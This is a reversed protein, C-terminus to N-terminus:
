AHGFLEDIESADQPENDQNSLLWDDVTDM